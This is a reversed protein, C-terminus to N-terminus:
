TVSGPQSALDNIKRVKESDIWKVESAIVVLAMSLLPSVLAYPLTSVPPEPRRVVFRTQQQEIYPLLSAISGHTPQSGLRYVANYLGRFSLLHGPTHLGHIRQSWHADSEEARKTVPPMGTAAKAPTIEAPTLLTQGFSVLDNHLALQQRLAEGEWLEKRDEPKILLWSVTVVLEYMARLAASADQDRRAPMHALVADAMDAMRLVAAATHLTWWKEGGYFRMPFLSRVYNVLEATYREIRDASPLVENAMPGAIKCHRGFVRNSTM